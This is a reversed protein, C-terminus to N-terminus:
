DNVVSMASPYSGLLVLRSQRRIAAVAQMLGQSESHGDCDLFFHYNGFKTGTPRSVISTLNVQHRAFLQLNDALLGPHDDDDILLVSTKYAVGPEPALRQQKSQLAIFRTENHPYDAVEHTVQLTAASRKDAYLEAVCHTPVIAGSNPTSLLVELAETNSGTTVLQTAHSSAAFTSALFEGCQGQAVFQAYIKTPAHSNSVYSFHVPVRLEAVIQLPTRLLYDVVPSVFGEAINEIPVVAVDCDDNLRALTRQLSSEFCLEPSTALQAAYRRAAIESFTGAPGLTVLKM